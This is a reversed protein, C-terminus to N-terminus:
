RQVQNSTTCFPWDQDQTGTVGTYHSLITSQVDCDNDYCMSYHVYSMYLVALHGYTQSRM